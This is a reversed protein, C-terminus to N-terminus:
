TPAGGRVGGSKVGGSAEQEKMVAEMVEALVADMSEASSFQLM